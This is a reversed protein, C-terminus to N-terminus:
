KTENIASDMSNNTVDERSTAFKGILEESALEILGQMLDEEFPFDLELNNLCPVQGSCDPFNYVELPDAFLGAVSITELVQSVTVYVYRDRLLFDPDFKTYRNGGKHKKSEWTTETLVLRGEMGTISVLHKSNGVLLQPLQQKTRLITCGSQPTCPCENLPVEELSM